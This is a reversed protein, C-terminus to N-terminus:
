NVYNTPSAPSNDGDRRSLFGLQKLNLYFPQIQRDKEYKTVCSILSKGKEGGLQKKFKLKENYTLFFTAEIVKFAQKPDM